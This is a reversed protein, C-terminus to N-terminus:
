RHSARCRGSRPPRAPVSPRYPGGPTPAAAPRLTAASERLPQRNLEAQAVQQEALQSDIVVTRGTAPDVVTKGIAYFHLNGTKEAGKKLLQQLLGLASFSSWPNQLDVVNGALTLGQGVQALDDAGNGALKNLGGAATTAPNDSAGFTAQASSKILPQTKQAYIAGQNLYHSFKTCGNNPFLAATRAYARSILNGNGWHDNFQQPTSGLAAPFKEALRYFIDRPNVKIYVTETTLPPLTYDFM